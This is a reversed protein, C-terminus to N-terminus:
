FQAVLLVQSYFCAVAILHRADKAFQPFQPFGLFCFEVSLLQAFFLVQSINKPTKKKYILTGSLFEKGQRTINRCYHM